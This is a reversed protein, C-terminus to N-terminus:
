NLKFRTIIIVMVFIIIIFTFIFIVIITVILIIISIIIIYYTCYVKCEMLTLGKELQRYLTIQFIVQM